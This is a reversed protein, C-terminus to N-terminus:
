ASKAEAIKAAKKAGKYDSCDLGRHTLMTKVGRETKDIAEAIAEVSMDSIDGLAAIPDVADKSKYVRQKPITIDENTRSLSLIKGRISQVERNMKDAIDEIFMDGKRLLKLLKAEEADSYTKEREVKPTPKVLSTLEMSLVKGQIQKTTYKSGCVNVAVEAYTYSGPNAELFSQVEAAEADSFSKTTAKSVSDVEFGMKRLKSSISRTTTELSEAATAVTAASVPSESGVLNTLTAAREETWKPIASM